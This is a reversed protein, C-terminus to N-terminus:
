FYDCANCLIVRHVPIRGGDELLITADCFTNTKRLEDQIILDRNPKSIAADADYSDLKADEIIEM